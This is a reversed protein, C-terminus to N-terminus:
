ENCLVTNVQNGAVPYQCFGFDTYQGINQEDCVAGNQACFWLPKLARCIVMLKMEVIQFFTLINDNGSNQVSDCFFLTLTARLLLNLIVLVLIQM